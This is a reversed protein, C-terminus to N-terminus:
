FPRHLLALARLGALDLKGARHMALAEDPPLRAAACWPALEPPLGIHRWSLAPACLLRVSDLPVPGPGADAVMARWHRIEAATLPAARAFEPLTEALPKGPEVPLADLVDDDRAWGALRFRALAAFAPAPLTALPDLTDIHDFGVGFDDAAERRAESPFPLDPPSSTARYSVVASRGLEGVSAAARIPATGDPFMDRWLHMMTSGRLRHVDGRFPRRIWEELEAPPVDSHEILTDVVRQPEDVNLLPVLREPQWRELLMPFGILSSHGPVHHRATWYAATGATMEHLFEDVRMGHDGIRRAGTHPDM